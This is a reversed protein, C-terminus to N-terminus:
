EKVLKYAKEGDIKLFYAGSAFSSLNIQNIAKSLIFRGVVQGSVNTIIM